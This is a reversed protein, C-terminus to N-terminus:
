PSLHSVFEPTPQDKEAVTTLVDNLWQDQRFLDSRQQFRLQEAKQQAGDMEADLESQRQNLDSSISRLREGLEPEFQQILDDDASVFFQYSGPNGQRASRGILQRDVRQSEQRESAIVHLGGLAVVQPDVRIDTGRGAMNTAITIAGLQGARSVIAAEDETQLGNLVHHRLTQATLLKSLEISEDITRTGVLIPQGSASRAAIDDAIADWKAQRTAFYCTPFGRRQNPLREPIVVVPLGYFEQFEREHGTATGTM